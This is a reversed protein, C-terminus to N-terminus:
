MRGSVGQRGWAPRLPLGAPLLLGASTTGDIIWGPSGRDTPKTM